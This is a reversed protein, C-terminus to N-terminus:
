LACANGAAELVVSAHVKGGRSIVAQGITKPTRACTQLAHEARFRQALPQITEHARTCDLFPAM